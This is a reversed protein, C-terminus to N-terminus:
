RQRKEDHRCAIGPTVDHCGERNLVRCTSLAQLVLLISVIHGVSICVDAATALEECESIENAVHEDDVEDEEFSM